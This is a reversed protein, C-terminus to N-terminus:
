RLATTPSRSRTRPAAISSTSCGRRCGGAPPMACIMSTTATTSRWWKSNGRDKRISKATIIVARRDRDVPKAAGSGTMAFRRAGPMTSADTDRAAAVTGPLDGHGHRDREVVRCDMRDDLLFPRQEVHHAKEGREGLLDEVLVSGPQLRM